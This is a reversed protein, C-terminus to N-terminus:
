RVFGAPASCTLLVVLMKPRMSSLFMSTFGIVTFFSTDWSQTDIPVSFAIILAAAFIMLIVTSTKQIELGASCLSATFLSFVSFYRFFLLIRAAMVMYFSPIDFHLHLPLVLRIIEFSFSIAFIAIYLIEPSSTQRFSLYISIIGAVSFLACLIISFHAALYDAKLFLSFLVQFLDAPRLNNEEMQGYVPMIHVSAVLVFVAAAICFVVGIKFFANRESFTM